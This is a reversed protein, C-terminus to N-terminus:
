LPGGEVIGRTKESFGACELGVGAYFGDRALFVFNNVTLPQADAQLEIELAGKATTITASYANAADIQMEPPTDWQKSM